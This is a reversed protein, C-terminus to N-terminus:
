RMSTHTTIADEQNKQVERERKKSFSQDLVPGFIFGASSM